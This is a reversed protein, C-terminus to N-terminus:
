SRLADRTTNQFDVLRTQEKMVNHRCLDTTLDDIVRLKIIMICHPDQAKSTCEQM